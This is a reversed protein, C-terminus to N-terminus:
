GNDYHIPSDLYQKINLLSASISLMNLSHPKKVPMKATVRKDAIHHCSRNDHDCASNEEQQKSIQIKCLTHIHVHKGFMYM